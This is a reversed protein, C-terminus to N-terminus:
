VKPVAKIRYRTRDTQELRHRKGLEGKDEKSLGAKM